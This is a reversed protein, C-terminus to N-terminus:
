VSRTMTLLHPADPQEVTLRRLRAYALAERAMDVIEPAHEREDTMPRVDWIRRGEADRGSCVAYSEIDAMVARDAVSLALQVTTGLLAATGHAGQPDQIRLTHM